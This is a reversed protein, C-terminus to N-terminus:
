VWRWICRRRTRYSTGNGNHARIEKGAGAPSDAVAGCGGVFCCNRLTRCFVHLYRDMTGRWGATASDLIRAHLRIRRLREGGIFREKNGETRDRNPRARPVTAATSVPKSLTLAFARRYLAPSGTFPPRPYVHIPYRTYLRHPVDDNEPLGNLVLVLRRRLMCKM